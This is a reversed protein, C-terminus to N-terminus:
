KKGELEILLDIFGRAIHLDRVSNVASVYEGGGPLPVRLMPVVPQDALPRYLGRDAHHAERTTCPEDPRECQVPTGCCPKTPAPKTPAPKVVRYAIIDGFRGDHSWIFAGASAAMKDEDRSEVEVQMKPDVPCEGGAWKVWGDPAPKAPAPKVVRYALIDGPMDIHAWRLSGASVMQKGGNRLEVDVRTDKGVPCEGGTWKIWDTEM